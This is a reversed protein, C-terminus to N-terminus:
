ELLLVVDPVVSATPSVMQNLKSSNLIMKWYGDTKQVPWIHSNFPYHSLYMVWGQIKWTRELGEHPCSGRGPLYSEQQNVIKKCMVLELSNWKNKGVLIASNWWGSFSCLFEALQQIHRNLLHLEILYSQDLFKHIYQSLSRAWFKMSWRAEM